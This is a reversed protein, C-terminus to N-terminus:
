SCLINILNAVPRIDNKAAPEIARNKDQDLINKASNAIKQIDYVTFDLTAIQVSALFLKWSSLSMWAANTVLWM